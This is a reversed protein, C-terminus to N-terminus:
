GSTHNHYEIETKTYCIKWLCIKTITIHMYGADADSIVPSDTVPFTLFIVLVLFVCALFGVVSKQLCASLFDRRNMM